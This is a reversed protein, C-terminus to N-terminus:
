AESEELQDVRGQLAYVLSSILGELSYVLGSIPSEIGWVAQALLQDRAPLSAIRRVEETSILEGNLVGGRVAWREDTTYNQWLAKAPGILDDHCETIASPGEFLAKASDLGADEAARRALSNKAIRINGGSERIKRRLAQLAAVRLGRYDSVMWLPASTMLTKIAEVQERKVARTAL